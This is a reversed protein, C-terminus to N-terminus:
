GNKIVSQGYAIEIGKKDLEFKIEKIINSQVEYHKNSVTQATIRYTISTGTVSYLGTLEVPGILNDLKKTLKTCVTNLIEESKSLDSNTSIGIDVVALSNDLTHNIVESISRNAFIKIEGTFARVRTTKLTLGIVEGKFSGITITDGIRYQGELIITIGAVFDKLIDQLSLALVASAVGLSAIISKTDLGYIDLIMLISVVIIFVKLINLFLSQITLLKKSDMGKTKFKFLKKIIKKSVFYIIVAIIIIIFPAIVEKSLIKDM